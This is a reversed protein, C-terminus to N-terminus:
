VHARGIQHHHNNRNAEVQRSSAKGKARTSLRKTAPALYIYPISLPPHKHKPAPILFSQLNLVHFTNLTHCFRPARPSILLFDISVSAVLLRLFCTEEGRGRARAYIRHPRHHPRGAPYAHVEGERSERAHHSRASEARRTILPRVKATM